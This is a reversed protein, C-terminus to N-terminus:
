GGKELIAGAINLGPGFAMSVILQGKKIRPDKGMKNWIHPLTASSMNGYDRLTEVSHSIQDSELGLNGQVQQLIKPGGPHIAFVAERRAQEKDVGALLCLRELYGDLARAIRVPVDKSLTMEYGHDGCNWTMSGTSSPLIEEHVGLIMLHEESQPQQSLSYKIFGDAFLSQVILQETSHKLPHLHLSCIETHVIDVQAHSLASFGIGMRIAPIAAYCGMHYAHTVLTQEGANRLSV